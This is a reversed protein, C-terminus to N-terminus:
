VPYSINQVNVKSPFSSTVDTIIWSPTTWGESQTFGAGWWGSCLFSCDLLWKQISKNINQLLLHEERFGNKSILIFKISYRNPHSGLVEGEGYSVMKRSPGKKGAGRWPLLPWESWFVSFPQGSPNKEPALFCDRVRVFAAVRHPWLSLLPAGLLWM